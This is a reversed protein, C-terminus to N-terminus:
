KLRTCCTSTSWVQSQVSKDTSIADKISPTRFRIAKAETSTDVCM